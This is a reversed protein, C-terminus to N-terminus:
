PGALAGTIIGYEGGLKILNAGTAIMSGMSSVFSGLTLTSNRMNDIMADMASGLAVMSSAARTIDTTTKAWSDASKKPM